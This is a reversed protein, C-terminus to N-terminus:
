CQDLTEIDLVPPLDNPGLAGVTKFFQRAQAQADSGPRGFHYAGRTLGAAASGAWNKAFFPDVVNIGETAKVFCFVVDGGAVQPWNITGQYHSVDIGRVLM